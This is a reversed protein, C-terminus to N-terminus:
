KSDKKQEIQHKGRLVSDFIFNPEGNHDGFIAYLLYYAANVYKIDDATEYAEFFSTRIVQSKTRKM